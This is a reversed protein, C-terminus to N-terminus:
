QKPLPCLKAIPRKFQGNAAKVLVVRVRKDPGPFLEIIVGLKWVLSPLNDEKILVHDGIQPQWAAESTWKTRQQLNHIYETSWRRWFSQYLQQTLQWRHLRNAPIKLVSPEPYTCLPQGILFHGPTLAAPSDPDDSLSCLPRSNLCAEIQSLVTTLEEFTLSANGIVRKLHSKMSKVGAEWLGGFHPARPPIFEWSIGESTSFNVVGEVTSNNSFFRKLENHAGVFTTGNDSYLHSPKGRRAIFRRLAALFSNTELDSVVELHIAKTAM